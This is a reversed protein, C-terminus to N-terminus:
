WNHVTRHSYLECTLKSTQVENTFLHEYEITIVLEIFYLGEQYVALGVIYSCKNVITWVNFHVQSSQQSTWAWFKQVQFRLQCTQLSSPFRANFLSKFNVIFMSKNQIEEHIVLSSLCGDWTRSGESVELQSSIKILTAGLRLPQPKGMDYHLPNLWDGYRVPALM